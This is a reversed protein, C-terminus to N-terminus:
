TDVLIKRVEEKLQYDGLTFDRLAETKEAKYLKAFKPPLANVDSLNHLMDALKITQVIDGSNAIRERSADKRTKRTGKMEPDTLRDVITAVESGFMHYIDLTTTDTDEVVDHLLAATVSKTTSITSKYVIKAVAIPHTVYPKGSGKRKQGRHKYTAYLLAKLVTFYNM